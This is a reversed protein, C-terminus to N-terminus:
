MDREKDPSNKGEPVCCRVCLVVLMTFVQIWGAIIFVTLFQGEIGLVGDERSTLSIPYYLYDGSCVKGGHSFRMLTVAILYAVNIVFFTAQMAYNCSQKSQSIFCAVIAWIAQLLNIVLGAVFCVFFKQGMDITSELDTNKTINIPHNIDEKATCRTTHGLQEDRKVHRM